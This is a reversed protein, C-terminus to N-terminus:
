FLTRTVPQTLTAHQWNWVIGLAAVVNWGWMFLRMETPRYPRDKWVLTADVVFWLACIALLGAIVWDRFWISVMATETCLLGVILFKSVVRGIRTATTRRGSLRDPELDMVEGFIHSHMAFLAGFLFTQWPLQNAHNLWSSLVFILLYSAQILVDFPPHSKWGIRPVNYIAVAVLMLACWLLIRPGTLFYFVALFPIQAVAILWRLLKLQETSGRSGFLFTGKRPNLLDAEADVLDNVGYLLLGLPFLVYSLGLWLRSSHFLDVHGLPMLYFMATTTWLGPRSVQLLFSFDSAGQTRKESIQTTATSTAM